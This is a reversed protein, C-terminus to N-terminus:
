VFDSEPLRRWKPFRLDFEDLAFEGFPDYAEVDISGAGDSDEDDEDPARYMATEWRGFQDDWVEIDENDRPLSDWTHEGEAVRVLSEKVPTAEGLTFLKRWKPFKTEMDDGESAQGPLAQSWIILTPEAEDKTQSFSALEWEETDRNWVQIVDTLPPFTSWDFEGDQLETTENM